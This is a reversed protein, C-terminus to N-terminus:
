RVSKSLSVSSTSVSPEISGPEATRSAASIRILVIAIKVSASRTSSSVARSASSPAPAPARAPRRRGGLAVVAQDLLELDADAGVVAELAGADLGDAVQDLARLRLEVRDRVEALARGFLDHLRQM